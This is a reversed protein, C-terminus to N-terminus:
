DIKLWEWENQTCTPSVQFLQIKGTYIEPRPAGLGQLDSTLYANSFISM